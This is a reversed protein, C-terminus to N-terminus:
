SPLCTDLLAVRVIEHYKLPFLVFRHPNEQLLPEDKELEKLTKPAAPEEVKPQQQVELVPKKELIAEPTPMSEVTVPMNEKDEVDFNLKKIPSDKVKLTELSAAAQAYNNNVHVKHSWILSALPL